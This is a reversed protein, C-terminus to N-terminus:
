LAAGGYRDSRAAHDPFHGGEVCTKTHGLPHTRRGPLATRLPPRTASPARKSLTNVPFRLTPEFGVGEAVVGNGATRWCGCFIPKVPVVQLEATAAQGRSDGLKGVDSTPAFPLLRCRPYLTALCVSHSNDAFRLMGFWTHVRVSAPQVELHGGPLFLPLDVLTPQELESSPCLVGSPLRPMQRGAPRRRASGRRHWPRAAKRPPAPFGAATKPRRPRGSPPPSWCM